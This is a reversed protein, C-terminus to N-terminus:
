TAENGEQCTALQGGRVGAPGGTMLRYRTFQQNGFADEYRVEGYVYFVCEGSALGQMEEKTFSRELDTSVAATQFHGPGMDTRATLGTVVDQEMAIEIHAPAPYRCLALCTLNVLRYAPTQGFNKITVIAEPTGENDDLHTVVAKEVFVYARLQRQATKESGRVLRVTAGWLMLTVFSLLWEGPKIGLLSIESTNEGGHQSQQYSGRDIQAAPGQQAPDDGGIGNKAQQEANIQPTQSYPYHSPWLAIVSITLAGIIAWLLERPVSWQL